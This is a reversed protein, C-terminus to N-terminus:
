LKKYVEGHTFAWEGGIMEYVERGGPGASMTKLAEIAQRVHPKSRQYQVCITSYHNQDDIVYIQTCSPRVTGEQTTTTKLPPPPVCVEMFWEQSESWTEIWMLKNPEGPRRLLEFRLCEPQATCQEALPWFIELFKDLKDPQVTVSITATFGGVVQLPPFSM